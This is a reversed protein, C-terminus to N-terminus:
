QAPEIRVTERKGRRLIELEMGNRLGTEVDKRLEEPGTLARGNVKLLLDHKRLGAREAPSSPKVDTIVLGENEGLGLQDVLATGPREITIGLQARGREVPPQLKPLDGFPKRQEKMWRDFPGSGFPFWPLVFRGFGPTNDWFRKMWADTSDDWFSWKEKPVLNELDYRAYLEPYKEKFEELSDAKYTRTEKAGSPERVTLEVKGDPHTEFTLGRGFDRYATWRRSPRGNKKLEELIRHARLAREPDRDALAERLAPIAADGKKRLEAEARERVGYEDAGLDRILDHITKDDAGQVLLVASLVAAAITM